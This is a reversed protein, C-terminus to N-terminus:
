PKTGRGRVGYLGTAETQVDKLGASQLLGRAEDVTYYFRVPTALRDFWDAQFVQFPYHSYLKM